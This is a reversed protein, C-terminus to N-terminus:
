CSDCAIRPLTVVFASGHGRGSSQAVVGGGHAQVLERVVALGIGLGGNSHPLARADQMFLDFIASLMEPSIGIGNDRVTVLACANLVTLDLAIEGSEPTYKSANDLLNSFVQALRGPDGHMRVPQSPVRLSFHQKRSEMGPRCSTMVQDLIDCLNLERCDMRLKGTSLRSGELLDDVLRTMHTIQSDIIVQLREISIEDTASRNVLMDAALRLPALPNRLEHAVVAMFKLQQRQADTALAASEQATLAALMLQANAERLDHLPSDPSAARLADVAPGVPMRPRPSPRHFPQGIHFQFGGLPDRKHRYMAADAHHILTAADEGDEPYISIGLSASLTLVQGGVNVPASLAALMEKAVRGADAPGSIEPLLVVFEDGGYRCLTDSERLVSQLAHSAIRLVQDGVAHGLGDNIPKFHDLDVFLVALRRQHRQAILLASQLRDLMFARTLMGTVLDRQHAVSVAALNAVATQATDDAHLAALVLQQNAEQLQVTRSSSLDHQADSLRRRQELLEQRLGTAKKDLLALTRETAAVIDAKTLHTLV